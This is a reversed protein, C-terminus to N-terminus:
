LVEEYFKHTGGEPHIAVSDPHFYQRMDNTANFVTVGGHPFHPTGIDHYSFLYIKYFDPYKSVLIRTGKPTFKTVKATEEVGLFINHVFGTQPNLVVEQSRFYSNSEVYSSDTKKM